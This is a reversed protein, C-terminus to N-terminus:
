YYSINLGPKAAKLADIQSQPFQEKDMILTKLQPLTSFITIDQIGQVGKIGLTVLNPLTNIAESYTVTNRSLDLVRLKELGFLLRLDSFSTDGVALFELSKASKLSEWHQAPTKALHLSKLNPLHEIM